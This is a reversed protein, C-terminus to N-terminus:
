ESTVPIRHHKLATFAIFAIVAGLACVVTGTVLMPKVGLRDLITGSILNSFVGGVTISSTIFAQGKVQDLEEMTENVYYAAAPIFVAYAFLQFSQSVYMATMSKAFILILIKVFFAVGSFLLLKAASIRKLVLGILAMVPLELIAQLFNSYGLETEAGGLDRIIQIMFDNIMNHSFFICIVGLLFLTYAPYIRAFELINNHAEGSAAAESGNERM